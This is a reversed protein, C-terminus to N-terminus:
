LNLNLGGGVGDDSDNECGVRELLLDFNIAPEYHEVSTAIRHGDELNLKPTYAYIREMVERTPQPTMLVPPASPPMSMVIEMVQTSIPYEECGTVIMGALWEDSKRQQSEMLFGLLIDNRSSHCVYLSRPPNKRVNKLFLNLSTAVLHLDQARYHRLRHAQGSVLAAGPFLRELDALAPSGLFPRDPICALIPVGWRDLALELYHRTQQLKSPQVKNIIVGAIEVGFRDCLCKNLELEDFTNGLGGNAVLVMKANLWSAVQANCAHVISGVACHGTGECLVVDSKAAIRQYAALLTDKQETATIKGDLYDKTYGPPIMIPSSDRYSVHDIGFHTKVLAADKDVQIMDGSFEDPVTVSVQGVPKIFGVKDFRRRLGSVLALSATTKGVHQRTAAV